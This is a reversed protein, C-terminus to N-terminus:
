GPGSTIARSRASSASTVAAIRSSAAGWRSTSPRAKPEPSLRGSTAPTSSIGTPVTFLRRVAARVASPRISFSFPWSRHVCARSGGVGGMQVQLVQDGLDGALRYTVPGPFVKRAALVATGFRVAPIQDGAPERGPPRRAPPPVAQGAAAYGAVN